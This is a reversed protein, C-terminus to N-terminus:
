AISVGAMPSNRHSCQRRVCLNCSPGVKVDSSKNDLQLGNAYVTKDAHVLDCALMIASYNPQDSFTKIRKIGTNAIFMYRSGDAFSAIQRVTEGPTRLSLYINWLPCAHGANPMLLGPLPFQKTLFGSPDARLFGFPIGQAGPKRLTVLRHAIQEFSANFYQALYEVDYSSQQAKRLFLDYPFILAGAVYSALANFMITKAEKSTLREDTCHKDLNESAMLTALKRALQFRRTAATANSALKLTKTDPGKSNFNNKDSSIVQSSTSREVRISFRNKLHEILTEESPLIEEDLQHDGSHSGGTFDGNAFDSRIKDAAKELEPFYNNEGIIMDNVERLPSVSKNREMDRDFQAILSRAVDSLARSEDFISNYFGERQEPPISKVDRLIEAGSRIATIQSLMQHLLQSFLPDSQLRNSIANAAANVDLYGRYTRHLAKAMKPLQAVIIHADQASLNQSALIPDAFAETLENILRQESEGTLDHLDVELKQAIRHLLSGGVDRKNAEILNLYSPSIQVSRALATQSLDKIKRYNRIRLGIPARM